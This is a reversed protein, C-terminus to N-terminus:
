PCSSPPPQPPIDQSTHLGALIQTFAAVRTVLARVDSELAELIDVSIPEPRYPIDRGSGRDRVMVYLGDDNKGFPNHAIQNRRTALDLYEKLIKSLTEREPDSISPSLKAVRKLVDRQTPVSKYVSFIAEAMWIDNLGTLISFIWTLHYELHSWAGTVRGLAAALRVDEDLPSPM